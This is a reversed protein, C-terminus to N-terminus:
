QKQLEQASGVQLSKTSGGDIIVVQRAKRFVAAAARICM